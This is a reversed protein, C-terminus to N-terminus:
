GPPRSGKRAGRDHLNAAHVYVALVLRLDEVELLM